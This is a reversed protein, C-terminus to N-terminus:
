ATKDLPRSSINNLEVLGQMRCSCAALGQNKILHMAFVRNQSTCYLAQDSDESVACTMKSTKYHLSKIREKM